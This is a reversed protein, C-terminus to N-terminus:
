DMLEEIAQSVKKASVILLGLRMTMDTEVMLIYDGARTMYVRAGGKEFVVRDVKGLNLNEMTKQSSSFIASIIAGREEVDIELNSASGVTLGAADIIIASIVGPRQLLDGLIQDITPPESV